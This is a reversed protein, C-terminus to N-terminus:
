EGGSTEADAERPLRYQITYEFPENRGRTAQFRITPRETVTFSGVPWPNVSVIEAGAPLVVTESFENTGYRHNYKVSCTWVGGEEKARSPSEEVRTYGFRQGPWVTRNLRVEYRVDGNQPSMTFPLEQGRSDTFRLVAEKPARDDLSSTSEFGRHVFAMESVSSGSGDASLTVCGDSTL